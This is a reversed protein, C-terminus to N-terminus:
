FHTNFIGSWSLSGASRGPGTPPGAIQFGFYFTDKGAGFPFNQSISPDISRQETVRLAGIQNSLHM